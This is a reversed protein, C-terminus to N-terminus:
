VFFLQIYPLRVIHLSIWETNLKHKIKYGGNPNLLYHLLDLYYTWLVYEWLDQTATTIWSLNGPSNTLVEYLNQRKNSNFGVIPLINNNDVM